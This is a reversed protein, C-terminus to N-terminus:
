IIVAETMISNFLGKLILILKKNIRKRHDIYIAKNYLSPYDFAYYENM